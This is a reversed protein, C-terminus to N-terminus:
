KWLCDKILDALEEILDAVDNEKEKEGIEEIAEEIDESIEELEEAFDDLDDRSVVDSPDFDFKVDYKKTFALLIKRDEESFFVDDKEDGYKDLTKLLSRTDSLKESAIKLVKNKFNAVLEKEDEKVTHNKYYDEIKDLEEDSLFLTTVDKGLLGELSKEIGSQAGDNIKRTEHDFVSLRVISGPSIVGKNKLDGIISRTAENAKSGVYNKNHLFVVGDENLGKQATVVDNKDVSLSINPNVDIVIDYVAVPSPFTTKRVSSYVFLSVVIAIAVAAATMGFGLRLRGNKSLKGKGNQEAIKDWDVGNSIKESLAPADAKLEKEIKKFVSM